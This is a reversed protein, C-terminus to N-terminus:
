EAPEETVTKAKEHVEQSERVAIPTPFAQILVLGTLEQVFRHAVNALMAAERKRTAPPSSRSAAHLADHVDVLFARKLREIEVRPVEEAAALQVEFNMSLIQLETAQRDFLSQRLRNFKDDVLKRRERLQREQAANAAGRLWISLSFDNHRAITQAQFIYDNHSKVPRVSERIVALAYEQELETLQEIHQRQFAEFAEDTAVRLELIKLASATLASDSARRLTEAATTIKQCLSSERQKYSNISDFQIYDQIEAEIEAAREFDCRRIASTKQARLDSLPDSPSGSSHSAAQATM